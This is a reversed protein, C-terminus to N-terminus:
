NVTFGSTTPKTASVSAGRTLTGKSIDFEVLSDKNYLSGKEKYGVGDDLIVLKKPVVAAFHTPGYFKSDDDSALPAYLTGYNGSSDQITTTTEAWGYEYCSPDSAAIAVKVLAGRSYALNSANTAESEKSGSVTIYSPYQRLLVFLNDTKGLGDGIQMDTITCSALDESELTDYIVSWTTPTGVTVTSDASTLTAKYITASDAGIYLTDGYVAIQSPTFSSESSTATSLTANACTYTSDEGFSLIKYLTYGSNANETLVYLSGTATDYTIDIPTATIDTSTYSTGSTSYLGSSVVMPYKTLTLGSDGLVATWLSCSSDFCYASSTSFSSVLESATASNYGTAQKLAYTTITDYWVAASRAASFTFKMEVLHTYGSITVYCSVTNTGDIEINEDNYPNFSTTYTYSSEKVSVEGDLAKKSNLYWAVTADDTFDNLTFTLTDDTYPIAAGTTYETESDSSYAAIISVTSAFSVATIEGTGAKKIYYSPSTYIVAYNETTDSSGYEYLSIYSSINDGSTTTLFPTDSYASLNDNIATEDDTTTSSVAYVMITYTNTNVQTASVAANNNLTLKIDSQLTISDVVLTKESDDSDNPTLEVSNSLTTASSSGKGEITLVALKDDNYIYVTKTTAAIADKFGSFAKIDIDPTGDVYIGITGESPLSKALTELLTNLNARSAASLGNYSSSDNTAYYTKVTDVAISVDSSATACDDAIEVFADPHEPLYVRYNGVDNEDSDVLSFSLSYWGSPINSGALSFSLTPIQTDGTEVSYVISLSEENDGTYSAETEATTSSTVAYSNKGDISNLTAKVGYTLGSDSSYLETDSFAGSDAFSLSLSGSSNKKPGVLVTASGTGNGEITVSTAGFVQYKTSSDELTYTGTLEVYYSGEAIYRATLKSDGYEVYAANSSHSDGKIAELSYVTTTVNDATQKFEVTWTTFNSLDYDFARILRAGPKNLGLNIVFGDEKKESGNEGTDFLSSCGAALLASAALMMGAFFKKVKM